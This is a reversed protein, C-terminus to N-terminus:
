KKDLSEFLSLWRQKIEPMTFKLSYTRGNQGLTERLKIDEVLKSTQQILQDDNEVIFGNTNTKILAKSGQHKYSIVPLGCQMAELIAMGFAENHSTSLFISSNIYEQMINKTNNYLKINSLNYKNIISEISAKLEGEGFISIEWNPFNENLYRALVEIREYGKEKSLRGVMIIRNNNLQSQKATEFSLPNPIVVINNNLHKTSIRAQDSLVVLADLKPYLREIIYKSARPITQYDVHECGITIISDEKLLSIVSNVNHTVGIIIDLSHEKIIKRINIYCLLFWHLKGKISTNNNSIDKYIVDVKKSIEFFPEEKKSTLSLLTVAYESSLLNALNIAARETGAPNNLNPIIILIKQMIKKM